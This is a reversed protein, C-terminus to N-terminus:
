QQLIFEEQQQPPSTQAEESFQIAATALDDLNPLGQEDHRTEKTEVQEEEPIFSSQAANESVNQSVNFESEVSGESIVIM